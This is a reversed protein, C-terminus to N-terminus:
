FTGELSLTTAQHDVMPTLMWDRFRHTSARREQYGYILLSTASGLLAGAVVDSTDHRNHYVREAALLTAGTFLAGYVVGHAVPHDDDFVHDHLYLASYTAIAFAKTAHGSPFSANRTPDTSTPSWDPRHRGFLPKFASVALGSTAMAEALGKAHNWRTADGGLVFAASVGVGVVTLSWGPVEWSSPTAGGEHPDFLWPSSRPTAWQDLALGEGLPLWLLPIAGDDFLYGLDVGKTGEDARANTALALLFVASAIAKM